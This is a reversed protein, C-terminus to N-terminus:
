LLKPNLACEIDEYQQRSIRVTERIFEIIYDGEDTPYMAKRITQIFDTNIILDEKIKLLM